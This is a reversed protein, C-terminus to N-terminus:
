RLLSITAGLLAVIVLIAVAIQVSPAVGGLRVRGQTVDTVLQSAALQRSRPV